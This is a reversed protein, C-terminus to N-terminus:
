ILWGNNESYLQLLYIFLIVGVFIILVPEWIQKLEIIDQKILYYRFSYVFYIIGAFILLIIYDLLPYFIYGIASFLKLIINVLVKM